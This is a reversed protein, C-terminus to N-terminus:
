HPEFFFIRGDLEYLIEGGPTLKDKAQDFLKKYWFLGDDGGDLAIRPEFDKIEEPLESIWPRRVYPLNATILDVKEPIPEALDGELFTVRKTLGLNEANERALELAETSIDSAYIKAHPLHRALALAVAGCGTGIDAVVKPNLKLAELVLNETESRPILARTDVKLDLGYFEKHGTIYAIPESGKRRIVIDRFEQYQEFKLKAEPHAFIETRPIKLVHSLLMEAELAPLDAYRLAQSYSTLNRRLKLINKKKM